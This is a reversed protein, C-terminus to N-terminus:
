RGIADRLRTLRAGAEADGAELARRYWEAAREPQPQVGRAAIQSLFVPDYTKGAATAAKADGAGAAREYLLRAASIDGIALMQDGRKMLAGIMEKQLPAPRTSPPETSGTIAPRPTAPAAAATSDPVAPAAAPAPPAVAPPPAAAASDVAAASPTTPATTPTSATATTAAAAAAPEPPPATETATAAPPAAAANDMAAPTTASPAAPAIAPTSATETTAPAATAPEPPPATATTEATDTTGPQPGAGGLPDIALAELRRAEAANGASEAARADDRYRARIRELLMPGARGEPAILLIERYTTLANDDAPATIKGAAVQRSGRALLLKVLEVREDREDAATPTPLRAPGAGDPPMAGAAGPAATAGEARPM